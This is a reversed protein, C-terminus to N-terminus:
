TPREGARNGQNSRPQGESTDRTRDLHNHTHQLVPIIVSSISVELRNVEARLNQNAERQGDLQSAVNNITENKRSVEDAVATTIRTREALLQNNEARLEDFKGKSFDM